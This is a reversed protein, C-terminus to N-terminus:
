IYKFSLFYELKQSLFKEMHCSTVTTTFKEVASKEASIIYEGFSYNGSVRRPM